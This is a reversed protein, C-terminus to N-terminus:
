GDRTDVAALIAEWEAISTGGSSRSLVEGDSDIAVLFPYGTLGYAAAIDAQASDRLVPIPWEERLLWESPPYNPAGEDVGTSVGIVDVGDPVSNAAFWPVLSTVEAQCRPCWHALFVVVRPRGDATDILVEEDSFYSARIKPAAMGVASDASATSDFPPLKVGNTEAFSVQASSETPIRATEGAAPRLEHSCASTLLSVQDVSM